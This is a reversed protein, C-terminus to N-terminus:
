RRVCHDSSGRRTGPPGAPSSTASWCCPTRGAARRSTIPSARVSRAAGSSWRRRKHLCTSARTQPCPHSPGAKFRASYVPLSASHMAVPEQDDNHEREAQRTVGTREIRLRELGRDDVVEPALLANGVRRDRTDLIIGLQSRQRSGVKFRQLGDEPAYSRLEFVRLGILVRALRITELHLQRTAADQRGLHRQGRVVVGPSRPRHDERHMAPRVPM